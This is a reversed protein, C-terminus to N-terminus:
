SLWDPAVRNTVPPVRIDEDTFTQGIIDTRITRQVSVFLDLQQLDFDNGIARLTEIVAQERKLYSTMENSNWIVSQDANRQSITYISPHGNSRLGLSFRRSLQSELYEAHYLSAGVLADIKGSNFYELIQIALSFVSQTISIGEIRKGNYIEDEDATTISLRDESWGALNHHRQDVLCNSWLSESFDCILSFDGWGSQRQFCAYGPLMNQFLFAGFAKLCRNDVLSLIDDHIALEYDHPNNVGSSKTM